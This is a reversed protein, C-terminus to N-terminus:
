AVRQVRLFKWTCTELGCCSQRTGLSSSPGTPHPAAQPSTTTPDQTIRHAYNYYYTSNRVTHDKIKTTAIILSDQIIDQLYDRTLFPQDANMPLIPVYYLCAPLCAPMLAGFQQTTSPPSFSGSRDTVHGWDLEREM